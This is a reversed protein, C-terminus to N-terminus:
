ILIDGIYKRSKLLNKLFTINYDLKIYTIPHFYTYLKPKTKNKGLCKVTRGSENKCALTVKKM